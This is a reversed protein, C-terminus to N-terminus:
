SKNFEGKLADFEDNESDGSANLACELEDGAASDSLGLGRAVYQLGSDVEFAEYIAFAALPAVIECAALPAVIECAVM